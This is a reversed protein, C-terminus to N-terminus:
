WSFNYTLCISSMQFCRVFDDLAVSYKTSPSRCIFLFLVYSVESEQFYYFCCSVSLAMCLNEIDDCLTGYM